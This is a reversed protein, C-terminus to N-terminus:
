LVALPETVTELFTALDARWRHDLRGRRFADLIQQDSLQDRDRVLDRLHNAEVFEEFVGSAVVVAQPIALEVDPLNFPSKALLKHMFALGRGKGGLSGPGIKAMGVFHDFREPRFDIIIHRQIYHLYSSLAEILYARLQSTSSFDSARQPRLLTALAFETRARLWRSFHNGGVHYVLSEDPVRELNPLLQRLGDARGVETGDPRRFVFDGFGFSEMLVRRVDEILTPSDKHVFAAKAQIAPARNAEDTSQLLIPVDVAAEHVRRALEIGATPDVRGGRPYSVDSIIGLVNSAYRNYTEWAEEFSQCLIIKPRARLRLLRHTLNLGEAMLGSTQRTIEAWSGFRVDDEVVIITQVGGELVDHDANRRDEVQKILALLPDVDGQWLFVWDIAGSQRSGELRPLDWAHDVLVGIPVGPQVQKAQRGFEYLETGALRASTLVLDFHQEALAHLAQAANATRTFRPADGFGVDLTTYERAIAEALQGGEELVFADYNSAVLLIEAVRHAMLNAFQETRMGYRSPLELHEPM